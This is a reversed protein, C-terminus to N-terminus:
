AISADSMSRLVVRKLSTRSIRLKQVYENFTGSHQCLCDLGYAYRLSKYNHLRFSRAIHTFLTKM